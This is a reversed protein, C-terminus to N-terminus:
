RVGTFEDAFVEAASLLANLNDLEPRGLPLHGESWVYVAPTGYDHTGDARTTDSREVWVEVGAAQGILHRHTADAGPFARCHSPQCWVTHPTPTAPPETVDGPVDLVANRM